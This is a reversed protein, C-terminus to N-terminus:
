GVMIVCKSSNQCFVAELIFGEGIIIDGQVGRVQQAIIGGMVACVACMETDTQDVVSRLHHTTLIPIFRDAQSMDFDKMPMDFDKQASRCSGVCCHMCTYLGDYDLGAADLRIFTIYRM